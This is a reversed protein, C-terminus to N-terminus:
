LQRQLLLLHIPQRLFQRRGAVTGLADSLAAHDGERLVGAQPGFLMRLNLSYLPLWSLAYIIFVVMLM